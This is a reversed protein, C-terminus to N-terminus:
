QCKGPTLSGNLVCRGGSPIVCPIAPCAVMCGLSEWRKKMAAAAVYSANAPSAYQACGCLNDITASCDADCTCTRAEDLTPPFKTVLDACVYASADFTAMSAPRPCVAGDGTDAKTDAGADFPGTDLVGTDRPGTDFVGTDFVSTDFVGSDFVSTDLVSTDFVGTDLVGTDAPGGDVGVDKPGSDFSADIKGGDQADQADDQADAPADAPADVGAGSDVGGDFSTDAAGDSVGDADAEPVEFNGGSCGALATCGALVLMGRLSAFSRMSALTTLIRGSALRRASGRGVARM